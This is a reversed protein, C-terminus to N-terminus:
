PAPVLPAIDVPKFNVIVLVLELRNFDVVPQVTAQQFLDFDRSRLNVVQGVILDPPYGGGLGSTLVLDGVEITVDQPILDLTVDGTVSGVLAADTEANQLRVNVNSAADTILQVRAADAIVADVRGVLGQDTVVPMGRLIGDNSGVNIIVYHLFPSPDRGIVAAAQYSNESRARSFDVLAALIDTEGVQQQLQIVQAQLESVESELEINRQRLSAVDRPATLFDQLAVFRSSFWFQLNILSGTFVNSASSFYGGLALALIGGVILFIITTQLTRSFLNRM